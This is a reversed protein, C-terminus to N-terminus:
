NGGSLVVKLADVFKEQEEDSGANIRLYEGLHRILIGKQQLKQQVDQANNIKIFVFNTMSEIVEIGGIQGLIGALKQRQETIKRTCKILYGKHKLVTEAAVATLSNVNYPSKVARLSSTLTKCAIAFGLRIAALGFAKSCTKLVFVNDFESAKDIISLGDFFDSYAEDVIILTDPLGNIIKLIDDRLLGRSTPNCPNSFIVGRAGSSKAASIIEEADIDFSFEEKKNLNVAEIEGINCYFQYMSFDPSVIVVKDGRKFFGNIIVSILEDSGNGAIIFEPSIGYYDGFAKCVNKALTDPYRNFKIKKINQAIEEIIEGPLQLYSENADLRVDCASENPQYPKLNKIKDNLIYM